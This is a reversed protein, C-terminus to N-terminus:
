GSLRGCVDVALAFLADAALYESLSRDFLIKAEPPFDEDGLWYLVAVPTRPTVPFSFAADAMALPQGGLQRCREKYLNIDNNYRDSIWATPIAHPGRFFTQGGPIDKESIWIGASGTEPARLLHHLLFVSFYPHPRPGGGPRCEIRGAAPSVLYDDGWAALIYVKQEADYRCGARRCVADPPCQALEDFLRKDVAYPTTM